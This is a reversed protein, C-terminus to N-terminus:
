RPRTYSEACGSASPRAVPRRRHGRRPARARVRQSRGARARRRDAHLPDQAARGRPDQTRGVRRSRRVRRPCAARACSRRSASRRLRQLPRLSGARDGAGARAVAAARGRLARAHDRHLARLLRLLARHIMVPTHESNDAGTYTLGFRAPMSYDLQVTGLQWSRGLSDTMHMDIKPGYFAGDGPNLEYELDQQTSRAPSRARPATGCRMTASASRPAPPSSWACTSTSCPTRRSRWSWAAPSRRGPGAGRHLLHPRRGPRLPARAAARAARGLARQPAAPRARLLARAPRPLLPSADRVPARPRSLEDAQGRGDGRGRVDVALFM